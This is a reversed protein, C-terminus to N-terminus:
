LGMGLTTPSQVKNGFRLQQLIQVCHVALSPQKATDISIGLDQRCHNIRGRQSPDDPKRSYVLYSFCNVTADGVVAGAKKAILTAGGQRNIRLIVKPHLKRCLVYTRRAALGRANCLKQQQNGQQLQVTGQLKTDKVSDVLTMGCCLQALHQFARTIGNQKQRM